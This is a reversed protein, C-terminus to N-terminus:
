QDFSWFEQLFLDRSHFLYGGQDLSMQPQLCPGNNVVPNYETVLHLSNIEIFRSLKTADISETDESELDLQKNDVQAVCFPYFQWQETKIREKMLTEPSDVMHWASVLAGLVSLYIAPLAGKGRPVCQGTSYLSTFLFTGCFTALAMGPFDCAWIDDLSSCFLMWSSIAGM